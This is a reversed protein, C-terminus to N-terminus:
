RAAHLEPVHMVDDAMPRRARRCHACQNHAHTEWASQQGEGRKKMRQRRKRKGGEGEGEKQIAGGRGTWHPLANDAFQKRGAQACATQM